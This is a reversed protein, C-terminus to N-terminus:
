GGRSRTGTAFDPGGSRGLERVAVHLLRAAPQRGANAVAPRGYPRWPRRTHEPSARGPLSSSGPFLHQTVDKGRGGGSLIPEGNPRWGTLPAWPEALGGRGAQHSSGCRRSAPPQWGEWKLASRSGLSKQSFRDTRVPTGSVDTSDTSDAMSHILVTVLAQLHSRKSILDPGGASVSTEHM